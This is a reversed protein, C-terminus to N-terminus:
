KASCVHHLFQSHCPLSFLLDAAANNLVLLLHCLCWAKSPLLCAHETATSVCRATVWGTSPASQSFLRRRQSTSTTTSAPWRPKGACQTFSSICPLMDALQLIWIILMCMSVTPVPRSLRLLRTRLHLPWLTMSRQPIPGCGGAGCLFASDRKRHQLLIHLGLSSTLLVPTSELNCDNASFVV